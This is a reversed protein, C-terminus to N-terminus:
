KEQVRKEAGKVEQRGNGKGMKCEREKNEERGGEHTRKVKCAM